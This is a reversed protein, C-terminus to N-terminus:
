GNQNNLENHMCGDNLFICPYRERERREKGQGCRREDSGKRREEIERKRRREFIGCVMRSTRIIIYTYKYIDIYGYIYLTRIYLIRTHTSTHTSENGKKKQTQHM